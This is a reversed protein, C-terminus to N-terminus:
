TGEYIKIYTRVGGKSESYRSPKSHPVCTEAQRLASKKGPAPELACLWRKYEAVYIMSGILVFALADAGSVHLKLM